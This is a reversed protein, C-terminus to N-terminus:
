LLSSLNVCLQSVNPVSTTLRTLIFFCYHTNPTLPVNQYTIQTRGPKTAPYNENSGILFTEPVTSADDSLNNPPTSSWAATIYANSNESYADLDPYMSGIDAPCGNQRAVVVAYFSLFCIFLLSLTCAIIYLCHIYLWAYISLCLSM